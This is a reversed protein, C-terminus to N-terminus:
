AKKAFQRTYLKAYEGKQALLTTHKGSEVVAGHKIVYIIDAHMVTSLRHAIVISTRGKMLSDLAKQVQEESVTDLASTAEDLLLIPANKLMARAIAIRQRQGGSLRVGHQGVITDYGNPLDKIFDHAAASKAAKIVANESAMPSGYRINARITDDFLTTEQTVIATCRRLSKLTAKKIDQGDILVQGKEPDYFRLILNMITSKGGGSPGVLAIRKGAPAHISINDLAAKDPEYSFQINDLKVDGNKIKLAKAGRINKIRPKADLMTYIRAVAALGEQLNTNLNSLSKMPKYAMILATIFSFFAGPTTEGELVQMGGYWIVGAIAVGALSEMIPPAASDIRAAKYYLAFLSEMVKRAKSVESAEQDYSKVIRIGQFTDDLQATFSGLADQTSESVKRMRKGLKAIPVIALPFVTFAILSLEISQYFMVAILCILTILEKAFSNLVNTLNKRIVHIDNSFRSILKGSAQKTFLAIDAHLLHRYLALQMDTIVRQGIYKMLVSQGYSAAGKALALALVLLPLWLLMEKNKQLFIQDLVPQMLWANAATATAAVVMCLMAVGLRGLHKKIYDKWLKQILRSARQADPTKNKKSRLLLALM